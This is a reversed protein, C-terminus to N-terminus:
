RGYLMRYVWNIENIYLAIGNDSMLVFRPSYGKGSIPIRLTSVTNRKFHSFDLLWHSLEIRDSGKSEAKSVLEGFENITFNEELLFANPDFAPALTIYKHEADTFAEELKNYCKRTKGDLYFASNFVTINETESYLKVQVERFRKKIASSLSRYGTDILCKFSDKLSLSRKATAVYVVGSTAVRIFETNRAVTLVSPTLSLDTTDEIYATWARLNTNYNLFLKFSQVTETLVGDVITDCEAKVDYLIRVTDQEAYVSTPNDTITIKDESYHNPYMASLTEYVYQPKNNLLTAINKYVPAITLEGTLSQSKPVVMYFYSGSKFFIMNKIAKLCIADEKTVPMDNQIVTQTFAGANDTTIKYIKDATFVLLDGLYPICNIIETEFVAVNNSVPYYFFNDVKSIFLTHKNDPLDWLVMRDNWLCSGQAAPVNYCKVKTNASDKSSSYTVIWPTAVADASYMVPKSDKGSDPDPDSDKNPRWAFGLTTNAQTFKYQYTLKGDKYEADGLYKWMSDVDESAAKVQQFVGVYPTTDKKIGSLIIELTSTGNLEPEVVVNGASNRLMVGEFLSVLPDDEITSNFDFMSSGRAANWGVDLSESLTTKPLETTKRVLRYIRATPDDYQYEYNADIASCTLIYDYLVMDPNSNTVYLTNNHQILKLGSSSSWWTDYTDDPLQLKVKYYGGDPDKYIFRTSNIATNQNITTKDVVGFVYLMGAPYLVDHDEDRVASINCANLLSYEPGINPVDKNAYTIQEAIIPDRTKLFTTTDDYDFNVINKLHTADINNDTWLMGGAFGAEETLM